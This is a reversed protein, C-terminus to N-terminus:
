SSLYEMWYQYFNLHTLDKGLNKPYVETQLTVNEGTSLQLTLTLLILNTANTVTFATV